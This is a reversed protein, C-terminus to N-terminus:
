VCFVCAQKPHCNNSTPLRKAPAGFAISGPKGPFTPGISSRYYRRVAAEVVKADFFSNTGQKSVRIPSPQAGGTAIFHGITPSARRFKYSKVVSHKPVAQSCGYYQAKGVAVCLYWVSMNVRSTYVHMYAPPIPHMPSTPHERKPAQHQSRCYIKSCTM